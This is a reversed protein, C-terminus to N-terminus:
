VGRHSSFRIRIPITYSQKRLQWGIQTPPNHAGCGEASITTSPGLHM